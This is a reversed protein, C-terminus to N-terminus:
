VALLDQQSVGRNEGFTGRSTSEPLHNANNRPTQLSTVSSSALSSTFSSTYSTTSSTTNSLLANRDDSPVHSRLCCLFRHSLLSLPCVVSFLPSFLFSLSVFRFIFSLIVLYTLLVFRLFFLLCVLLIVCDSADCKERKAYKKQQHTFFIPLKKNVLQTDPTTGFKLLKDNLYACLIKAWKEGFAHNNVCEKSIPGLDYRVIECNEEAVFNDAHSSLFYHLFYFIIIIICFCSLCTVMWGLWFYFQVFFYVFSSSLVRLFFFVLLLFAFCLLLLMRTYLIYESLIGLPSFCQDKGITAVVAKSQFDTIEGRVSGQV